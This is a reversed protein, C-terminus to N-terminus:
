TFRLLLDLGEHRDRVVPLLSEIGALGLARLMGPTNAVVVMPPGGASDRDLARRARRLSDIATPDLHTCDSLDVLVREAPRVVAEYLAAEMRGAGAADLEGSVQIVTTRDLPDRHVVTEPPILTRGLDLPDIHMGPM